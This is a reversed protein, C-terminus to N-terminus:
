GPMGPFQPMDAPIIDWPQASATFIHMGPKVQSPDDLSGVAIMVVGPFAVVDATFLRSGCIPCFHRDLGKGSNGTYHYVKTEGKTVRFSDAPVGAVTSMQGGGARQCDRCHCHGVFLPEAATCEYRVAGCACGGNLAVTM